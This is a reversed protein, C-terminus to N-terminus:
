PRWRLGVPGPRAVPGAQPDAGLATATFTVTVERSTNGPLTVSSPSVTFDAGPLTDVDDVSLAYTKSSTSDNEVRVQKTRTLSSDTVDLYGFSVSVVGPDNVVYALSDTGVASEADIRGAGARLVGLAHM